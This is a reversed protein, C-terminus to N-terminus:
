INNSFCCCCKIRTLPLSYVVSLPCVYIAVQIVLNALNNFGILIRHWLHINQWWANKRPHWMTNLRQCPLTKDNYLHNIDRSIAKM